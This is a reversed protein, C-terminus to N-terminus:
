CCRKRFRLITDVVALLIAVFLLFYSIPILGFLPEHLVGNDDVESTGFLVLIVWGTISLCLTLMWVLRLRGIKTKSTSIKDGTSNAGDPGGSNNFIPKNNNM